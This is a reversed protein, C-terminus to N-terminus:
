LLEFFQKADKKKNLLFLTKAFPVSIFLMYITFFTNYFTTPTTNTYEYFDATDPLLLYHTTPTDTEEFLHLVSNDEIAMLTDGDKKFIINGGNCEDCIIGENLTTGSQDIEKFTSYDNGFLFTNGTSYFINYVRGGVSLSLSNLSRNVIYLEKGSSLEQFYMENDITILNSLNYFRTYSINLEFDTINSISLYNEQYNNADTLIYYLNDNLYELDKIYYGQSNYYEQSNGDVALVGYHSEKVDEGYMGVEISFYHDFM